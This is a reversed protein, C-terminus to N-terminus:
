TWIPKRFHEKCDRILFATNQKVFRQPLKGLMYFISFLGSAEGCIHQSRWHLLQRSIKGSLRGATSGHGHTRWCSASHHGANSAHQAALPRAWWGWLPVEPSGARAATRGAAWEAKGVPVLQIKSKLLFLGYCDSKFLQEQRNQVFGICSKYVM